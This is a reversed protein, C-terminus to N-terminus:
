RERERERERERGGGGTAGKNRKAIKENQTDQQKKGGERKLSVAKLARDDFCNKNNGEKPRQASRKRSIKASSM